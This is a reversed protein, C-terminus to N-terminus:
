DFKNLSFNCLCPIGAIKKNHLKRIKYTKTFDNVAKRNAIFTKVPVDLTQEDRKLSMTAPSSPNRYTKRQLFVLIACNKLLLAFLIALILM